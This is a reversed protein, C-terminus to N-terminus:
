TVASHITTKVYNKLSCRQLLLTPTSLTVVVQQIQLNCPGRTADISLSLCLRAPCLPPFMVQYVPLLLDHM